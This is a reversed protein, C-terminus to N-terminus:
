PIIKSPRVITDFTGVTIVIEKGRSLATYIWPNSFFYNFQRHVPIVVPAENWQFRHCTICYAHLLHGAKKSTLAQRAPDFFEVVMGKKQFERIFGIDGNVLINGIIKGRTLCLVKASELPGPHWSSLKDAWGPQAPNSVPFFIPLRNKNPSFMGDSDGTRLFDLPSDWLISLCLIFAKPFAM